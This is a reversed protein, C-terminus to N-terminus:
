AHIMMNTVCCDSLRDVEMFPNYIAYASLIRLINNIYDTMSPQFYLCKYHGFSTQHIFLFVISVYIFTPLPCIKNGIPICKLCVLFIFHVYLANYVRANALVICHLTVTECLSLCYIYIDICHM